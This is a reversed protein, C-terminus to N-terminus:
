AYIYMDNWRKLSNEMIDEKKGKLQAWVLKLQLKFM